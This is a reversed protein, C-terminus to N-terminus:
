KKGEKKKSKVIKVYSFRDVNKNQYTRKNEVKELLCKDLLWTKLVWVNSWTMLDHSKM